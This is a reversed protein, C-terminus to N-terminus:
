YSGAHIVGSNHSTTERGFSEHREVVVVSRTAALAAAIALGIVGAGVIVVDADLAAPTSATM